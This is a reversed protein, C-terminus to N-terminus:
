IRLQQCPRYVEDLFIVHNPPVMALALRYHVIILNGYQKNTKHLETFKLSKVIKTYFVYHPYYIVFINKRTRIRNTVSKVVEM